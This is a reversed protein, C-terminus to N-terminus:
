FEREKPSPRPSTLIRLEKPYYNNVRNPLLKAWGLPQGEGFSDAPVFNMLSWGKKAEDVVLNERRLYLIAQDYDLETQAVADKNIIISLALEHD